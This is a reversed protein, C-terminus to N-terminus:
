KKLIKIVDDLCKKSFSYRSVTKLLDGFRNSKCERLSGIVNELDDGWITEWCETVQKIGRSSQFFTKDSILASTFMVFDFTKSDGNLMFKTKRNGIVYKDKESKEYCEGYYSSNKFPGLTQTKYKIKSKTSPSIALRIESDIEIDKYSFKTKQFDFSIYSSCPEGHFFGFKSYFKCLLVLQTYIDMVTKESLRNYITATPSSKALLPNLSVDRLTKMKKMDVLVNFNNKCNYSWIYPVFSPYSHDKLIDEMVSSVAAYNFFPNSFKCETDDTYIGPNSNNHSFIKITTGQYKGLRVVFQRSSDLRDEEIFTKVMKCGECHHNRTYFCKNSVSDNMCIRDHKFNELRDLFKPKEKEWLEFIGDSTYPKKYLSLSQIRPTDVRKVVPLSM